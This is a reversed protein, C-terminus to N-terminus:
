NRAVPGILGFYLLFDSSPTLGALRVLRRLRDVAPDLPALGEDCQPVRILVAGCCCPKVGCHPEAVRFTVSRGSRGKTM